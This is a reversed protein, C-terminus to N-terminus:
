RGITGKKHARRRQFWKVLEVIPIVNIAMAVSVLYEALSIPEFGFASSLFPVYIVAATLLPSMVMALYLYVNHTKITFISERQSRMNLAHFVEALSMTLFAMTMCDTSNDFILRGSEMYHGILYALLTLARGAGRIFRTWVWGAPM